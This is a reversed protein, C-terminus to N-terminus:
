GMIATRTFYKGLFYRYICKVICIHIIIICSVKVRSHEDIILQIASQYKIFLNVLLLLHQIQQKINKSVNEFGPSSVLEGLFGSVFDSVPSTMKGRFNSVKLKM